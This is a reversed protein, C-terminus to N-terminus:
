TAGARPCVSRARARLRRRDAVDGPLFLVVALQGVLDIGRKSVRDIRIDKKLRNLEGRQIAIEILHTGDSREVDAKLLAYPYPGEEEAGWRIVQRDAHTHPSHSMALFHIAELLSTKGQANDGQVIMLGRPLDLELRAYLRFNTLSLHRVIM